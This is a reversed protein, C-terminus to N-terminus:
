PAVEQTKNRKYYNRKALDIEADREEKLRKVEARKEKGDLAARASSIRESYDHEIDAITQDLKSPRAQVTPQYPYGWGYPGYFSSYFPSYYPSYFGGGVIVTRPRVVVTGRHGQAFAGSLAVALIGTLLLKKM